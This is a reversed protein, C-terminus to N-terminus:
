YDALVYIRDRGLVRYRHSGFNVLLLRLRARVKHVFTKHAILLPKFAFVLLPELFLRMNILSVQIVVCLCCDLFLIEFM